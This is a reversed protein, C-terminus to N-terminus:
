VGKSHLINWLKSKFNTIFVIQNTKRLKYVHLVKFLHKPLNWHCTIILLMILNNQNNDNDRLKWHLTNCQFTMIRLNGIYHITGLVIM